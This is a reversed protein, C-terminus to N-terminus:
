GIALDWPLSEVCLVWDGVESMRERMGENEADKTAPRGSGQSRGQTRWGCVGEGCEGKPCPAQERQRFAMRRRERWVGESAIGM